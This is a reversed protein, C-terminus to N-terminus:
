MQQQDVEIPELVPEKPHLLAEEVILSAEAELRQESIRFGADYLFSVALAGSPLVSQEMMKVDPEDQMLWTNVQKEVVASDTGSFTKFQMM